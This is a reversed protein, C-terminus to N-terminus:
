VGTGDTIRQIRLTGSSFPKPCQDRVEQEDGEKTSERMELQTPTRHWLVLGFTLLLKDQRGM